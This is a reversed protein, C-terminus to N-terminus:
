RGAKKMAESFQNVREENTMKIYNLFVSETKHGTIAMIVHNPIINM